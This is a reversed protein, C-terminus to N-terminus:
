AATALQVHRVPCPHRGARRGSRIRQPLRHPGPTRRHGPARRFAPTRFVTGSYTSAPRGRVPTRERRRGDRVHPGPPRLDSRLHHHLHRPPAGRFQAQAPDPHRTSRTYTLDPVRSLSFMAVGQNILGHNIMVRKDTAVMWNRRWEIWRLADWVAVALLGWWLLDTLTGAPLFLNLTLVVVLAGVGILMPMWLVAWHQRQAVLVNEDALLYKQLKSHRFREDLEPRQRAM